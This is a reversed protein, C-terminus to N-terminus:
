KSKSKCQSFFATTSNGIISALEIEEKMIVISDDKEERYYAAKAKNKM